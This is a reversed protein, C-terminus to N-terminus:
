EMSPDMVRGAFLVTGTPLDRLLFFFPRDFTVPVDASPRGEDVETAATAVTGTEDIEITAEHRMAEVYLERTGDTPSLDAVGEQLADILGRERMLQDLALTQRLSVRPLEVVVEASTMSAVLDDIAEPSLADEFARLDPPEIVLLSLKGGAYELEAIDYGENRFDTIAKRYMLSMPALAGGERTFVAPRTRDPDFADQWDGAFYIANTLVLRTGPNLADNPLVEPIRGGTNASIWDNVIRRSGEPDSSFDLGYVAAGYSEALTDLYSPLVPHGREVFTGNMVRLAVRDSERSDLALDLANMAHDHAAEDLRLMLADRIQADTEGDAGAALMSLASTISYPSFVFSERDAAGIQRYFDLAFELNSRALSEADAPPVDSATLRAKQSRVIDAGAPDSAPPLRPGPAATCSTLFLVLVLLRSREM